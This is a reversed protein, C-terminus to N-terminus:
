LKTTSQDGEFNSNFKIEDFGGERYSLVLDGKNDYIKATKLKLSESIMKKIESLPLDSHLESSNNIKIIFM